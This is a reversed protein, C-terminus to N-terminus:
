FWLEYNEMLEQYNDIVIDAGAAKLDERNATTTIAVCTCGAAKVARVGFISDEIGGCQVPKLGGLDRIATLYSQPSPKPEKFSENTVLVEFTHNFGLGDLIPVTWDRFSSTVLALRKRKALLFRVFKQIGPIPDPNRDKVLSTYDAKKERRLAPIDGTLQHLRLFHKMVDEGDRGILTRDFKIEVNFNRLFVRRMSEFKLGESDIVVGDLDLLWALIEEKLLM